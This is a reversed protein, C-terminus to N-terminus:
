PKQTPATADRGTEVISSGDRSLRRLPRSFWSGSRRASGRRGGQLAPSTGRAVARPDPSPPPSTCLRSPRAHGQFFSTIWHLLTVTRPPQAASAHTRRPKRKAYGSAPTRSMSPHFGPHLFFFEKEAPSCSRRGSGWFPAAKKTEDILGFTVTALSASEIEWLGPQDRSPRERGTAAGQQCRPM